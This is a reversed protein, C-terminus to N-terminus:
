VPQMDVKVVSAVDKYLNHARLASVSVPLLRM